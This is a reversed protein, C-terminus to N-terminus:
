AVIQGSIFGPPSSSDTGTLKGQTFWPVNSDGAHFLVGLNIFLIFSSFRSLRYLTNDESHTFNFYPIYLYIINAKKVLYLVM